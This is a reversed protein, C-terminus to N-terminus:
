GSISFRLPGKDIFNNNVYVLTCMGPLECPIEKRSHGFGM